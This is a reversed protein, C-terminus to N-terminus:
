VGTDSARFMRRVVGDRDFFYHKAAGLLHLALLPVFLQGAIEHLEEVFEHLDRNASLPSPLSFLGYIDIARGVSWPSLYGTVVVVVIAALFGWFVIKSAVTFLWAQDPAPAMGHRVRHAVRWLLFVGAIAGGSVHFVFAASGRAGEHTAFLAIVLIAAMWHLFISLRSYATDNTTDPM